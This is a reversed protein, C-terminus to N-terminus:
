TSRQSLIRPKECNDTIGLGNLRSVKRNSIAKVMKGPSCGGRLIAKGTQSYIKQTNKEHLIEM